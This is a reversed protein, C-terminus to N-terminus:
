PKILRSSHHLGLDPSPARSSRPPPLLPAFSSHPSALLSAREQNAPITWPTTTWVLASLSASHAAAKEGAAQLAKSGGGCLEFAIFAATSTHDVKYELEAEALATRMAPSWHM